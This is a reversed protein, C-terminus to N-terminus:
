RCRRPLCTDDVKRMEVRGTLCVEYFHEHHDNMLKTMYLGEWVRQKNVLIAASDLEYEHEICTTNFVKWVAPHQRSKYADPFFLAGFKAYMPDDLFLEEPDRTM